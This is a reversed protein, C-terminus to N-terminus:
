SHLGQHYQNSDSSPQAPPQTTPGAGVPPFVLLLAHATTDTDTDTDSAHAARWLAGTHIRPTTSLVVRGVPNVVLAPQGLAGLVPLLLRELTSVLVDVAAVGAFTEGLMVPHAATITYDANCVYDVYPGEIFPQHHRAPQDFWDFNRFDLRQRTEQSRELQSRHISQGDKFWWELTWYGPADGSQAHSAFGAGNCCPTADLCDRIGAQLAQRQETSLTTGGGVAPQPHLIGAAVEALDAAARAADDMIGDLVQRAQEIHVDTHM